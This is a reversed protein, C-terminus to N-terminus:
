NKSDSKPQDKEGTIASKTASSADQLDQGAGKVTSCGTLTIGALSVLALAALRIATNKM